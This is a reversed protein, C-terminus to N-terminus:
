RDIRNPYDTIIGDIELSILKNIDQIKNVTWAFVKINLEHARGIEKKGITKHHMGLAYPKFDLDKLSSKISKFPSYTLYVMRYEPAKKHLENLIRNDFCMFIINKKHEYNSVENLIIEVYEKPEPHYKNDDKKESKIEFLIIQNSLDIKEIVDKFLPKHTILKEQDPFKEYYKSGCDFQEVENQTMKYINLSKENKIKEGDPALCYKSDIFPEHSIVLQKDKNVVVDWEIGDVKLEIAKEFGEINNEPLIGRCGRHGFILTKNQSSIPSNMILLGSIIILKYMVIRVGESFSKGM